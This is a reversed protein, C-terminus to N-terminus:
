KFSTFIIDLHPPPVVQLNDGGIGIPELSPMDKYSVVKKELL